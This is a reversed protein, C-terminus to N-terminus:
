LSGDGKFYGPYQVFDPNPRDPAGKSDAAAADGPDAASRRSFWDRLIRGLAEERSLGEQAMFSELADEVDDPLNTM